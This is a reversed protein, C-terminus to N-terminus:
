SISTALNNAGVLHLRAAPDRVSKSRESVERYTGSKLTAGRRFRQPYETVVLLFIFWILSLRNFVAETMGYPIVALLCAMRFAAFPEGKIAEMKIRNGASFIVAFLLFVGILGSNLYTELYGNHAENLDYFFEASLKKTREASWFSYFGTGILPDTGERLVRNWIGTRGTLSMDRGLIGPTVAKLDFLTNVSLFLVMILASYAWFHKLKNRVFRSRMGLFTLTGLLTCALATSSHALHLLWGTLAGLFLLVPWDMWKGKTKKEFLEFVMWILTLACGFLTMGLLNKDLTVGSYYASGNDQDYYRGLEPFYKILLVSLPILLYCCRALLIKAARIPQNDSLVILVMVVNGLDKIWRKLSVLPFDSWLVSVGLYLFFVVLWRNHRFLGSWDLRRRVLVITGALILLQFFLGDTPSGELPDGASDGSSGFGFWISIPRSGIIFIWILPIWLANSILGRFGGLAVTTFALVPPANELPQIRTLGLADRDINMSEQVHFVGVLLVAALIAMLIKKTKSSM